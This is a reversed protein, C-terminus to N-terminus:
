LATPRWSGRWLLQRVFVYMVFVEVAFAPFGLYGAIPMEFVKIDPPVPVTYVWKSRSWYNWFEWLVGCVIGAVLLNYLRQPHGARLDGRLSEAGNKANLPDVLFIFGLWVPAALWPSPYVIPVILMAAGAVVSTWGLAGLPVKVPDRRRYEPARRDHIAGVLEACILIAPSITAFAWAYGIYRVLLVDPLGVYHWNHLSYKNYIEFIVWLPVSALTLVTMEARHNRLPSEGRRKWIWGDAFLIFGTWAIPTHWSWFPEIHALMAAESIAIIALGALGYGPFHRSDIASQRNV